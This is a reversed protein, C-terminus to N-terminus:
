EQNRSRAVENEERSRFIIPKLVIVYMYRGKGEGGRGEAIGGM